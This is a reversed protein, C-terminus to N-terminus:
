RGIRAERMRAEATKRRLKKLKFYTPQKGKKLWEAYTMAHKPGAKKYHEAYEKKSATEKAIRQKARFHRKVKKAMRSVWTSKKAMNIPGKGQGIGLGRGKGGSRIKSGPCKAMDYERNQPGPQNVRM